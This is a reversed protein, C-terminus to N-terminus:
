PKTAASLQKAAEDIAVVVSIAATIIAQDAAPLHVSSAIGAVTNLIGVVAAAYVAVKAAISKLNFKFVPVEPAPAAEPNVPGFRELDAALQLANFGNPATGDPRLMDKAIPAWVEDVYANWARWTLTYVTGWTLVKVGDANYACAVVSHGGWSGPAWDGALTQGEPLDWLGPSSQWAAPLLIGINVWGFLWIATPAWGPGVAAYAGLKHAADQTFLPDSRWNDLAEAIVYGDCGGYRGCAGLVQNTTYTVPDGAQATWLMDGHAIAAWVCDGNTDNGLMGWDTVATSNDLSAPPTPLVAADLYHELRLDRPDVRAPGKGLKVTTLDLDTM